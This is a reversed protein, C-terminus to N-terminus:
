SCYPPLDDATLVAVVGPVALAESADISLINAHAYFSPVFRAHLMGPLYLDPTYRATGTVKSHGEELKRRQGIAESM